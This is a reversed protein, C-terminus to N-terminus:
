RRTFFRIGDAHLQECLARQPHLATCFMEVMIWTPSPRPFDFPTGRFEPLVRMESSPECEHHLRAFFSRLYQVVEDFRSEAMGIFYRAASEHIHQGPTALLRFFTDHPLDLNLTVTRNEGQLNTHPHWEMHWYTIEPERMATM